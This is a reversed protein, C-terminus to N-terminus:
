VADCHVLPKAVVNRNVRSLVAVIHLCHHQQKLFVHVHAVRVLQYELAVGKEVPLLHIRQFVHPYVLVCRRPDRQQLVHLDHGVLDVPLQKHLTVPNEGVKLVAQGRRVQLQRLRVHHV